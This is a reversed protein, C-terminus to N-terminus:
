KWNSPIANEKLEGIFGLDQLIPIALSGGDFKLYPIILNRLKEDTENDWELSFIKLLQQFEDSLRLRNPSEKFVGAVPKDNRYWIVYESTVSCTLNGYISDMYKKLASDFKNESIIYNMNIFILSYFYIITQFYWHYYFQHYSFYYRFWIVHYQLKDQPIIVRLCKKLMLQEVICVSSFYVGDM